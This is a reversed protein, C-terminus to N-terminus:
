VCWRLLVGVARVRGYGFKQVFVGNPYAHFMLDLGSWQGLQEWNQTAMVQALSVWEPAGELNNQLSVCVAFVLTRLYIDAGSYAEGIGYVSPWDGYYKQAATKDERAGCTRSSTAASMPADRPGSGRTSSMASTPPASFATSYEAFAPHQQLLALPVRIDVLGDGDVTSANRAGGAEERLSVHM